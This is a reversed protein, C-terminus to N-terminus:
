QDLPRVVFDNFYKKGYDYLRGENGLTWIGVTGGSRRKNTNDFCILEPGEAQGEEWIRVRIETAQDHNRVTIRFQYWVNAKPDVTTVYQAPFGDRTQCYLQPSENKLDPHPSLHFFRTSADDPRIYRRLRYYSDSNPYDSYFTVGVSGRADDIMLKGTLQYNQWRHSQNGLYHSHLNKGLIAESQIDNGYTDESVAEQYAMFDAVELSNSAGTDLWYFDKEGTKASFLHYQTSDAQAPPATMDPGTHTGGGKKESNCGLAFALILGFSIRIVFSKM